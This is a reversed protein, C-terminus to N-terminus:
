PQILHDPCWSQVWEVLSPQREVASLHLPIHFKMSDTSFIGDTLLGRSLGDTGQHIMRTGAVHIVHLRLAATMELVRLCLILSFLAKNDSNGRNYGGEATTNDTFIFLESHNLEGCAVGDEVSAVLNCLERFNSSLSDSDRGWLGHRFLISGDPLEFSSGFGSNSADVFGYIAVVWKTFHVIRTPATELAFLRLLCTLDDMLRPAPTVMDPAERTLCITIGDNREPNPLKWM